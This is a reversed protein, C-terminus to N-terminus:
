INDENKKIVMKFTSNDKLRNLLEEESLRVEINLLGDEKTVLYKRIAQASVIKKFRQMLDYTKLDRVKGLLFTIQGRKKRSSSIYNIDAM